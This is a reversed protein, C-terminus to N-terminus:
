QLEPMWKNYSKNNIDTRDVYGQWKTEKINNMLQTYCLNIDTNTYTNDLVPPDIVDGINTATWYVSWMM